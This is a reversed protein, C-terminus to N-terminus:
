GVEISLRLPASALKFGSSDILRESCTAARFGGLWRFQTSLSSLSGRLRHLSPSEAGRERLRPRGIANRWARGDMSFRIARWTRVVASRNCAEERFRQRAEDTCIM